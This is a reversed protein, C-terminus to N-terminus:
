SPAIEPPWMGYAEFPEDPKVKTLNIQFQIRKGLIRKELQALTLLVFFPRGYVNVPSLVVFAFLHHGPLRAALEFERETAGFWYGGLSRDAIVKRTTKMEIIHLDSIRSEVSELTVPPSPIRTMIADFARNSYEAVGFAELIRNKIAPAVVQIRPNERLLVLGANETKRNELSKGFKAEFALNDDAM